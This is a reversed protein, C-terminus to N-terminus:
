YVYNQLGLRTVITAIDRQRPINRNTWTLSITVLAMNSAYNETGNFATVTVSGAYTAGQHSPNLPDYAAQFTQPLFTADHLQEWTYLRLTETKEVLIQTARREEASISIQNLNFIICGYLALASTTVLASAILTEILSFARM